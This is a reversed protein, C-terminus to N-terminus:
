IFEEDENDDLFLLFYELFHVFLLQTQKLLAIQNFIFIFFLNFLYLM